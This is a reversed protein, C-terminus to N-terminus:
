TEAPARKQAYDPGLEQALYGESHFKDGEDGPIAGGSMWIRWSKVSWRQKRTPRVYWPHTRYRLM